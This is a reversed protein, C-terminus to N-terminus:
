SWRRDERRSGDNCGARGPEVGHGEGDTGPERGTSSGAPHGDRAARRWSAAALPMRAFGSAMSRDRRRWGPSVVIAVLNVLM